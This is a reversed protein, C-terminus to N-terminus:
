LDRFVHDVELKSFPIENDSKEAQPVFIKGILGTKGLQTLKRLSTDVKFQELLEFLKLAM